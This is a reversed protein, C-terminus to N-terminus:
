IKTSDIDDEKYKHILIVEFLQLHILSKLSKVYGKLNYLSLNWM